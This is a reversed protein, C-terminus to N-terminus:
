GVGCTEEKNLALISWDDSRSLNAFKQSRETGNIRAVGWLVDLTSREVEIVTDDNLECHIIITLIGM